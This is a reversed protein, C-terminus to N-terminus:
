RTAFSWTRTVPTSGATGTFSVDYTTSAALPALPVIAASSAGTHTDNASTLLRVALDAGGRPRVTFSTVRVTVDINAHVSIPYGVENRDPVPDPSETDSFFNRPVATQGSFPWVAVQGGSLGAGYGDNATFNATFYNYGQSTTAAGTGIEKFVPEFIVFRHYVATILEEAMYQGSGNSTASIVEGYARSARTNFVYGAATLRAGVDIGTFGQNSAVEDHTITNNIRQYDSHNQAARDIFSNRVLASMGLQSRRYNIWERGDNAINGTALPAGAGGLTPTDPVAPPPTLQDPTPTTATPTPTVTSASSGGGGGCASLALATICGALIMRGRLFESM